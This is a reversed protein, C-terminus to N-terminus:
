YKMSVLVSKIITDPLYNNIDQVCHKKDIEKYETITDELAIIYDFDWEYSLKWDKLLDVSELNVICVCLKQHDLTSTKIVLDGYENKGRKNYKKVISKIFSKRKEDNLGVVGINIVTM